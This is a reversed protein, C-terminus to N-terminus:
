GSEERVELVDCRVEGRCLRVQVEDGEKLAGAERVIAGEPLRRCISYGRSLVSLPSLSELKGAALSLREKMGSLRLRLGRELASCLSLLAQRGTAIRGAPNLMMLSRRLHSWSERRRLYFSERSRRLRLALEDARQSGERLLGYPDRLPPRASQSDLRERCRALLLLAARELRGRLSLVDARLKVKEPVALEAAASPTPARLDAVFDAMTYDMEHGVASIVPLESAAIARAVVEENFAWLDELSGGGRGVIILDLGPVRNLEGIARAVEEAAGDGQVKSPRVVVRLNPYRRFIIRLIDRIAAGTLSTVVGVGRPLCPLPRKREPDFLGESALREKLQQFALELAGRGRPELEQVVLQYEGRTEYVTVRGRALVQMGDEPRFRVSARETRFLVARLQSAEDKLTFYWHGSAPARFNSVEGEVWVEFFEGELTARIARTLQSVTLVERKFVEALLEVNM